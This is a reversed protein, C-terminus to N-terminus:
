HTGIYCFQSRDGAAIPMQKKMSHHIARCKRMLPGRNSTHGLHDVPLNCSADSEIMGKGSNRQAICVEVNICRDQLILDLLLMGSKFDSILDVKNDM